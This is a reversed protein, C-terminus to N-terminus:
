GSKIALEECVGDGLESPDGAKSSPSPYEEDLTEGRDKDRQRRVEEDGVPGLFAAEEGLVLESQELLTELVVLGRSESM